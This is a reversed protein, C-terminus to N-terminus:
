SQHSANRTRVGLLGQWILAAAMLVGAVTWQYGPVFMTVLYCAAAVGGIPLLRRDLHLGALFYTLSVLLVVLSGFGSWELHGTVSLAAGLGIAALFALWHLVWRIGTRRDAQGTGRHARYGLWWSLCMGVPSAVMWFRGIWRYDQVFDSLAFGCLVIAAWLFHISPIPTADARDAVARVYAIDERLKNTDTM